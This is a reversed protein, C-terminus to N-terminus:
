IYFYIIRLKRTGCKEGLSAVDKALQLLKRKDEYSLSLEIYSSIICTPCFERLITTGLVRLYKVVLVVTYDPSINYILFGM